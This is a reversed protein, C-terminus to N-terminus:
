WHVLVLLVVVLVPLVVAAWPVLQEPDLGLQLPVGPVAQLELRHPRVTRVLGPVLHPAVPLQSLVECELLPVVVWAPDQLRLVRRVPAPLSM